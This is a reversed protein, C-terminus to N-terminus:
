VCCCSHIENPYNERTMIGKKMEQYFLFHPYAFSAAWIVGILDFGLLSTFATWCYWGASVLVMWGIYNKAGWIGLGSNVMTVVAFLMPVWTNRTMRSVEQRVADDDIADTFSSSSIAGLGAFAISTFAINIINM